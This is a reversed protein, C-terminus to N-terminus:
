RITSVPSEMSYQADEAKLDQSTIPERKSENLSSKRRAKQKKDFSPDLSKSIPTLSKQSPSQVSILSAQADALVQKVDKM